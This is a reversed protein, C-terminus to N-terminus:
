LMSITDMRLWVKGRVRMIGELICKLIIRRDVGIYQFDDRESVNEYWSKM